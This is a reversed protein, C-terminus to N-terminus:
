CGYFPKLAGTLCLNAVISWTLALHARTQKQFTARKKPLARRPEVFKWVHAYVRSQPRPFRVGLRQYLWFISFTQAGPFNTSRFVLSCKRLDGRTPRAKVLSHFLLSVLELKHPTAFFFLFFFFFTIWVCLGEKSLILYRYVIWCDSNKVFSIFVASCIQRSIEALVIIKFWEIYQFIRLKM